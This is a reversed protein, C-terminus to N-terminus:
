ICARAVGLDLDLLKWEFCSEIDKFPFLVNVVFLLCVRYDTPYLKLLRNLSEKCIFLAVNNWQKLKLCFLFLHVIFLQVLASDYDQRDVHMLVQDYLRDRQWIL